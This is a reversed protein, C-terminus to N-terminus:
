ATRKRRRWAYGVLALAGIGLLAMSGPEPVIQQDVDLADLDDSPLLGLAAFGHVVVPAGAGPGLIDAGSLGYGAATAATLSYEIVGPPIPGGIPYPGPPVGIIALADVDAALGLPLGLLAQPIVVIPVPGFIGGVGLIDAPTAGLGIFPLSPSGAALSFLVPPLLGATTFTIDQLDYSNVEDGPSAAINPTFLGTNNEDGDTSGLTWGFGVPALINTGFLAPSTVFIDGAHGPSAGTPLTDGTFEALVGSGPAGMSGRTVSFYDTHPSGVPDMGNSIADVVDGPLLGLGILGLAAAGIGVSPPPPFGPAPVGPTDLLLDAPSAAMIARTPSLMDLTFTDAQAASPVLSAAVAVALAIAFGVRLASLFSTRAARTRSSTRSM